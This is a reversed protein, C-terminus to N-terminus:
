RTAWLGEILRAAERGSWDFEGQVRWRPRGDAGLLITTPFIKVGWDGAIAGDTDLVIPLDVASSKLFRMVTRPHEKFNVALVSLKEGYVEAAVQLTPMESRCPECWTAWFNLAVARGPPPVPVPRGELDLATRAPRGPKAAEPQVQAAGASGWAALAGLAILAHRRSHGIPMSPHSFLKPIM